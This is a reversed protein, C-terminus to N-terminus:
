FPKNSDTNSDTNSCTYDSMNNSDVTASVNVVFKFNNTSIKEIVLDENKVYKLFVRSVYLLIHNSISVISTIVIQLIFYIKYNNIEIFHFIYILILSLIDIYITSVILKMDYKNPSHKWEVFVLYLISFIEVLKYLIVIIISYEGNFKCVEFNEKGEYLVSQSTYPNILSVSNVLFDILISFLLFLYKNSNIWPSIKNEKPFQVILKFLSPCVSFTYGLSFLFVKLHCKLTTVPGYITIPVWLMLVSGLITITWFEKTLFNFFPHFSDGIIFILSLMMLISIVSFYIFCILGVYTNETNLSVYYIKKIDNIQKLTEDITKNEYLFQYIYKQYKKRYNGPEKKIFEPEITFQVNQIINRTEENKCVDKDYWFENIASMFLGNEFGQRQYEKSIFFKVVELAAEKKEKSINKIIGINNGAVTTGSIGEKIGPLNSIYNLIFMQEGLFWYKLFIYKGGMLKLATFNENSRFIDDSKTQEKFKKLMILSDIFSQDQLNPYTSNYSDRCSYIFEYLSYLGIETDDFLGNYCILEHDDKEKDMIFKCTDILEDWTKPIPKNYKDLLERKSYLVEFSVFMPLGVVEDKYTCVDNVIKSDYMEIYEKPLNDKLDLLYPGYINTYKNDYVYIDYVENTSNKDNNINNSKKLSTEVLSKFNAYSDSPSVFKMLEVQITINLNNKEAYEAFQLEIPSTQGLDSETFTYTLINIQVNKGFCQTIYYLISFFNYFIIFKM